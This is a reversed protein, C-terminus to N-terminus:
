NQIQRKLARYRNYDDMNKSKEFVALANDVQKQLSAKADRSVTSRPAVSSVVPKTAPAKAVPVKAKKGVESLRELGAAMIAEAEPLSILLKKVAPNAKWKRMEANYPSEEDRVWKFHTNILEDTEQKIRGYDQLEAKRQPIDFKLKRNAERRKQILEERTMKMEQNGIKFSYPLEKGDEDVPARSDLIDNIFDVADSANREENTLKEISVENDYATETRGEAKMAEYKEKYTYKEAIEKRLKKLLKQVSKPQNKDDAENDVNLASKVLDDESTEDVKEVTEDKSEVEAANEADASVDSSGEEVVDAEDKALVEVDQGVEEVDDVKDAIKEVPKAEVKQSPKEEKKVNAVEAANQRRQAIKEILQNVTIPGSEVQVAEKQVPAADGADKSSNTM